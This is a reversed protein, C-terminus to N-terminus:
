LTAYWIRTPTSSGGSHGALDLSKKKIFYLFGLLLGQYALCLFEITKGFKM